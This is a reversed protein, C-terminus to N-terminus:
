KKGPLANILSADSHPNFEVDSSSSEYSMSNIPTIEQGSMEFVTWLTGPQNPVSYDAVIGNGQYVIVRAASSALASSSTARRNSYDHVSYRYVGDRQSEITITEPGFRTVDDVDLNANAGTPRKNSWYVHFRDGSALPGTLHSDLDSPSSGWSLVIRTQGEELIQTIVANQNPTTQGGLSVVSFSNTAYGEKSITATYNGTEVDELLYGGAANTTTTSVVSGTTNGLGARLEILVGQVPTGDFADKIEGAISGPGSYDNNIQLTVPFNTTMNASVEITDLYSVPLYGEREFRLGYNNGSPVTFLYGGDVDTISSIIPTNGELLTISVGEIPESTAADVVMGGISGTESICEGSAFTNSVGDHSVNFVNFEKGFIDFDINFEPKIGGNLQWCPSGNVDAALEVFISGVNIEPGVVKFLSIELEPNLGTRLDLSGIPRVPVPEVSFDPEFIADWGSGNQYKIGTTLSASQELRSTIGVQLNGQVDMDLELEPFVVVPGAMFPKLTIKAIEFSENASVSTIASFNTTFTQTANATFEMSAIDFFGFNLDGDITLEFAIETDLTIEAGSADSLKKLIRYGRSPEGSALRGDSFDLVEVGEALEESLIDDPTIEKSFSLSGEKVSEALNAQETDVQVESANKDIEVVKRLLGYPTKDSIGMMLIDGVELSDLEGNPNSFTIQADDQSVFTIKNLSEASLVKTTPPLILDGIQVDPPPINPDISDPEPECSSVFIIALLMIVSPMRFFKSQIKM